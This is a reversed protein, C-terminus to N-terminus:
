HWGLACPPPARARLLLPRRCLRSAPLAHLRMVWETLRRARAPLQHRAHAAAIPSSPVHFAATPLAPVKGAHREDDPLVQVGPMGRLWAGAIIFRL